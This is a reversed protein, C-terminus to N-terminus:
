LVRVEVTVSTIEVIKYERAREAWNSYHAAFPNNDRTYREYLSKGTAM